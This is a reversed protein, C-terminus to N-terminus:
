KIYEDWLTKLKELLQRVKDISSNSLSVAFITNYNKKKENYQKLMTRNKMKDATIHLKTLNKKNLKVEKNTIKEIEKILLDVPYYEIELYLQPKLEKKYIFPIPDIQSIGIDKHTEKFSRKIKKEINSAVAPDIGLEKLKEKLKRKNKTKLLTHILVGGNAPAPLEKILKYIFM